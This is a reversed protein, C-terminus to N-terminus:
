RTFTKMANLSVANQEVKQSTSTQPKSQRELIKEKMRMTCGGIVAAIFMIAAAGCVFEKVIEAPTRVDGFEDRYGIVRGSKDKIPKGWFGGKEKKTQKMM